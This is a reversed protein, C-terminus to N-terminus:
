INEAWEEKSEKKVKFILLKLKVDDKNSFEIEPLIM